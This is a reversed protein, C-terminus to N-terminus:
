GLTHCIGAASVGRGLLVVRKVVRLLGDLPQQKKIRDDGGSYRSREGVMLDAGPWLM